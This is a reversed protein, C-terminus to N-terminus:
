LQELTVLTDLTEITEDAIMAVIMAGIIAITEFIM